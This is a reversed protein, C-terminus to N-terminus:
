VCVTTNVSRALRQPLNSLTRETQASLVWEVFVSFQISGLFRSKKLSIPLIRERPQGQSFIDQDVLLRGTRSLSHRHSQRM